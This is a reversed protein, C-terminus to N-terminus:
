ERMGLGLDECTRLNSCDEVGSGERSLGCLGLGGPGFGFGQDKM